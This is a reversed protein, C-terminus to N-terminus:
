RVKGFSRAYHVAATDLVFGNVSQTAISITQSAGGTFARFTVALSLQITATRCHQPSYPPRYISSTDSMTCPAGTSTAIGAGTGSQNDYQTGWWTSDIMAVSYGGWNLPIFTVVANTLDYGDYATIAVITDITGATRGLNQILYAYGLWQESGASTTVRIPSPLVGEAVGLHAFFILECESLTSGGAALDCNAKNSLSDFHSALAQAREQTSPATASGCASVTGSVVALLGATALRM